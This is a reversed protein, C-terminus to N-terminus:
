IKSQNELNNEIYKLFYLNAWVKAAKQIHYQVLFTKESEQKARKFIENLVTEFLFSNEKLMKFNVNIEDIYIYFHKEVVELFKGAKESDKRIQLQKDYAKTDIPSNMFEDFTM